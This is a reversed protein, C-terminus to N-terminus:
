VVSKRDPEAHAPLSYRVSELFADLWNLVPRYAFTMRNTRALDSLCARLQDRTCPEDMLETLQSRHRFDPASHPM